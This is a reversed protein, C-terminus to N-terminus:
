TKGGSEGDACPQPSLIHYFRAANEGLIAHQEERTLRAVYNQVLDMTDQYSAAIICVPWDSGIMLRWPGFAELATDLYPTFDDPSWDSWDAETVMGSLKCYVNPYRALRRIDCSWDAIQRRRISPKGVHDLVFSHQPFAAVFECAIPLHRPFLLLDYTLGFSTLYSIGRQFDSSLLFRDDPEDHVVHRMGRLKPNSAFAVLQSRVGPNRLDVWGVVAVISPFRDALELLWRTEELSQRAQVAVSGAFGADRLQPCLNEPLHDHKLAEMGAGMWGYDRENYKWFHQHADIRM